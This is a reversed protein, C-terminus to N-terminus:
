QHELTTPEEEEGLLTKLMNECFDFDAEGAAEKEICVERLDELDEGKYNELAKLLNKKMQELGVKESNNKDIVTAVGDEVTFDIDAQIGSLGAVQKYVVTEACKAVMASPNRRWVPSGVNYEEFLVYKSVKTGDRMEAQAWAGVIDGRKVGFSHKVTGEVPNNEFNDGQRVECSRLILFNPNEQAKKKFGDRGAFTVLNGKADKYCWIEKKFPDLGHSSALKLFFALETDTVGKAVTNKIIAVEEATFTQMVASIKEDAASTKVELPGKVRKLESKQNNM